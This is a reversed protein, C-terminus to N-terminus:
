NIKHFLLAQQKIVDSANLLECTVILYNNVSNDFSIESLNSSFLYDLDQINTGAGKEFSTLLKNNKLIGIKHDFLIVNTTNRITSPHKYFINAGVLSTTTNSWVTIVCTFLETEKTFLAKFNVIDGSSFTGAPVETVSLVQLAVTAASTYTRTDSICTNKTQWSRFIEVMKDDTFHFLIAENNPLILDQGEKLDFPYYTPRQNQTNGTLNANHAITVANGTLNRLLYPKGPYFREPNPADNWATIDVAAVSQLASNTLRIETRGAVDFPISANVGSINTNFYYAFSKKVFDTGTIPDIPDDISTDNVDFETIYVTDIPTPPAIVISGNTEEGSISVVTNNTTLVLIDKRSFGADCLPIPITIESITNYILGNIKGTVGSGVVINNGNIAISGVALLQNYNSNQISDIIQQIDIYQSQGQKSVPIKSSPDLTSQHPLEDVKKANTELLNFRNTLSSVLTILQSLSSM